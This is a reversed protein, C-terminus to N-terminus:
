NRLRLSLAQLRGIRWTIAGSAASAAAAVAGEEQELQEVEPVVAATAAPKAPLPSTPRPFGDDEEEEGGGTCSLCSLLRRSSNARMSELALPQSAGDRLSDLDMHRALLVSDLHLTEALETAGEVGGPWGKGAFQAPSCCCTPSHACLVPLAPGLWFSPVHALVGGVVGCATAVVGGWWM